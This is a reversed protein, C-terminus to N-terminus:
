RDSGWGTSFNWGGSSIALRQGDGRGAFGLMRGVMSDAVQLNRELSSDQRPMQEMRRQGLRRLRMADQDTLISGDVWQEYATQVVAPGWFEALAAEDQGRAYVKRIGSPSTPDCVERSSWWASRVVEYRRELFWIVPWTVIWLQLIICAWFFFPNNRLHNIWHPSYVTISGNALSYWAQVKGRYNASRLYSTFVSRMPDTNLGFLHRKFTFRGSNSSGNHCVLAM